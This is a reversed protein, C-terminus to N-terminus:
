LGIKVGGRVGAFNTLEESTFNFQYRAEVFVGLRESIPIDVGGGVTAMLATESEGEMTEEALQMGLFSGTMTVSSMSLHAIGGGGIVYPSIKSPDGVFSAKLEGSVSVVSMDAGTIDFTFGMDRPDLGLEATLADLMGDEDFPFRDYNFMAQVTLHRSLRYGVGGGVNLGQKWGDNFFDPQQPITLGGNLLFHLKSEEQATATVALLLLVGCTLIGRKM